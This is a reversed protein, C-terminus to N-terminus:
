PREIGLEKIRYDLSSRRIQLKEAAHSKNWNSAELAQVILGRAFESMRAQFDIPENMAPAPKERVPLTRGTNLGAPLHAATLPGPGAAALARLMVNELERVNGPWSHSTLARVFGPDIAPDSTGFEPAFAEVMYDILPEIDERRERLAPLTIGFVNIRYYLDERFTGEKIMAELDRNSAFIFRCSATKPAKSGVPYYQSEQLLRLLKAQMELPTEGIEDFFLSGGAAADVLGAKDQKADTFAGKTYGFVESEWLNAPLAACNVPVFPAKSTRLEHIMRAVLEKGTGTEGHIYVPRAHTAIQKVQEFVAEMAGSRFIITKGLANRRQVEKRSIIETFKEIEADASRRVERIRHHYAHNRILLALPHRLRRLLEMDRRFLPYGDRKTGLMVYGVVDSGFNLSAAVSYGLAPMKMLFENASKAVLPYRRTFDHEPAMFAHEKSADGFFIPQLAKLLDPPIEFNTRFRSYFLRRSLRALEPSSETSYFRIQDSHDVLSLAVKRTGFADRLRAATQELFLDTNMAHPASDGRYVLNLVLGEINPGHILRDISPQLVAQYVAGLFLGVCIALGIRPVDAGSGIGLVLVPMVVVGSFFVSAALRVASRFRKTGFDLIERYLVAYVIFSVVLISSSPGIFFLSWSGSSPLALSFFLIIGTAIAEATLFWRIDTRNRRSDSKVFKVILIATWAAVLIVCWGAIVYFFPGVVTGEGRKDIWSRSLTLPSLLVSVLVVVGVRLRSWPSQTGHPFYEAFFFAATCVCLLAMGSVAGVVYIIPSPYFHRTTLVSANHAFLWFALSFLLAAYAWEVMRKEGKRLASAILISLVALIPFGVALRLVELNM